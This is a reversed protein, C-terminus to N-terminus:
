EGRGADFGLVHEATFEVEMGSPLADPHVDPEITSTRGIYTSGRVESVIVFRPRYDGGNKYAAIKVVDGIRVSLREELPPGPVEGVELLEYVNGSADFLMKSM